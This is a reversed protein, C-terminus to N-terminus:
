DDVFDAVQGDVLGTGIQEELKDTSAIFLSRQDEGGILAEAGPTLHETVPHNRGRDEVAHKVM